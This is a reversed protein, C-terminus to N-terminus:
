QTKIIIEESTAIKLITQLEYVYKISKLSVRNERTNSMKPSEAIVPYWVNEVNHLEIYGNQYETWYCNNEDVNFGSNILTQGTLPVNNEQLELVKTRIENLDENLFDFVSDFGCRFQHNMINDEVEKIKDLIPQLNM